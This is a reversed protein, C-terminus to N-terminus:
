ATGGEEGRIPPVAPQSSPEPEPRARLWLFGLTVVLWVGGGAAVPFPVLLGEEAAAVAPQLAPILRPLLVGAGAGVAGCPLGFAGARLAEPGPGAWPSGLQRRVLRLLEWLGGLAVALCLLALSGEASSLRLRWDDGPLVLLDDGRGRQDVGDPGLSYPYFHFPGRPLGPPPDRRADEDLYAFPRGWPDTQTGMNSAAYARTVPVRPDLAEVAPGFLVAGLLLLAVLGHVARDAPSTATLWARLDAERRPGREAASSAEEESARPPVHEEPPIPREREM